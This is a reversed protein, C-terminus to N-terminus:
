MLKWATNNKTFLGKTICVSIVHCIYYQAGVSINKKLFYIRTDTFFFFCWIFVDRVTWGWPMHESHEVARVFFYKSKFYGIMGLPESCKDNIHYCNQILRIQYMVFCVMWECSSLCQVFLLAILPVPHVSILSNKLIWFSVHKYMEIAGRDTLLCKGIICTLPL